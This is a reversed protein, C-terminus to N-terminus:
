VSLTFGLGNLLTFSGSAVGFMTRLSRHSIRHDCDLDRKLLTSLSVKLDLCLQRLLGSEGCM